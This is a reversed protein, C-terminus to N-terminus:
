RGHAPSPRPCASGAATSACRPPAPRLSPRPAAYPRLGAVPQVIDLPGHRTVVSLNRKEILAILNDLDPRPIIDVDETSRVHGHVAVAIGGTVIFDIGAGTLAQLTGGIDLDSM